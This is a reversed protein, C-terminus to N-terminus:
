TRQLTPKPHGTDYITHLYFTIAQIVSLVMMLLYFSIPICLNDDVDVEDLLTIIITLYLILKRAEILHLCQIAQPLFHVRAVSITHVPTYAEAGWGWCLVDKGRYVDAKLYAM